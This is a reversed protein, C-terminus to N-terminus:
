YKGQHQRGPWHLQGHWAAQRKNGGNEHLLEWATHLQCTRFILAVDHPVPSNSVRLGRRGLTYMYGQIWDSHLRGRWIYIFQSFKGYLYRMYLRSSLTDNQFLWSKNWLQSQWDVMDQWPRDNLLRVTNHTVNTLVNLWLINLKWEPKGLHVKLLFNM